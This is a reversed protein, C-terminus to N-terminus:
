VYKFGQDPDLGAGTQLTLNELRPLDEISPTVWEGTASKVSADRENSEGGNPVSM